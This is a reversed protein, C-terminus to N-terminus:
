TLNHFVSTSGSELAFLYLLLIFLLLLVLDTGVVSYSLLAYRFLLVPWLFFVAMLVCLLPLVYRLLLVYRLPSSVEFPSCVVLLSCGLVIVFLFNFCLYCSSSCVDLLFRPAVVVFL